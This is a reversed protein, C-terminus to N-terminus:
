SSDLNKADTRWFWGLVRGLKRGVGVGGIKFAQRPGNRRLRECGQESAM